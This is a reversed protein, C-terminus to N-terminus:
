MGLSGGFCEVLFLAEGADPFSEQLCANGMNAHMKRQISVGGLGAIM